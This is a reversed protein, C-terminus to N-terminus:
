NPEIRADTIWKKWRERDAQIFAAFQEPTEGGVEAGTEVLPNRIDPMAM